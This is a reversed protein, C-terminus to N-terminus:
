QQNNDPTDVDEDGAGYAVVDSTGVQIRSFTGKKVSSELSRYMKELNQENSM